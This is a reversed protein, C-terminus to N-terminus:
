DLKPQFAWDVQDAAIAARLDAMLTLNMPDPEFDQDYMLTTRNHEYAKDRALEAARILNDAEAGHDPYIAWGCRYRGELPVNKIEVRERVIDCVSQLQHHADALDTIHKFIFAFTGTGYVSAYAHGARLRFRKTLSKLIEDAVAYGAIQRIVDMDLIDMIAIAVKGQKGSAQDLIAALERRFAHQNPLRTMPDHFALYEVKSEVREKAQKEKLMHELHNRALQLHQRARQSAGSFLFL